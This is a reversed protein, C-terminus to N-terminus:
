SNSSLTGAEVQQAAPFKVASAELALGLAARVTMPRAVGVFRQGNPNELTDVFAETGILDKTVNPSDTLAKHTLREVRNKLDELTMGQQRVRKLEAFHLQLFRADGFRDELGENLQPLRTEHAGILPPLAYSPWWLM